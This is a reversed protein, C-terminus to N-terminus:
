VRSEPSEGGRSGDAADPRPIDSLCGTCRRLEDDFHEQCVLRGCRDCGDAIPDRECIECAGSEDM